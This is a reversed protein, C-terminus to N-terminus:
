CAPSEPGADPAAVYGNAIDNRARVVKALEDTNEFPAQVGFERVLLSEVAAKDRVEIHQLQSVYKVDWHLDFVYPLRPDPSHPFDNARLLTWHRMGEPTTEFPKGKADYGQIRGPGGGTTRVVDLPKPSRRYFAGVVIEPPPPLYASKKAMTCQVMRM